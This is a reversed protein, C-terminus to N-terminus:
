DKSPPIFESAMELIQLDSRFTLKEKAESIPFWKADAVENEQPKPDGSVYELLFYRVTKRCKANKASINFWYGTNGIFRIARGKLSTEEKVERLAAREISEGPKVTGKPFAWVDGNKHAILVVEIGSATHRYMVGGASLKYMMTAPRIM